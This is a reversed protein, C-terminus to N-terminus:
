FFFGVRELYWATALVIMLTTGLCILGAVLHPRAPDPGNGGLRAVLALAAIWAASIAFAHEPAFRGTTAWALYFLVFAGVGMAAGYFVCGAIGKLPWWRAVGTWRPRSVLGLVWGWLLGVATAVGLVDSGPPAAAIALSVPYSSLAGHVVTPVMCGERAAATQM